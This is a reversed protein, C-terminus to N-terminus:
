ITADSAHSTLCYFAGCIILALAGVVVFQGVLRRRDKWLDPLVAAAWFWAFLYIFGTLKSLIALVLVLALGIMVKVSSRKVLCLTLVLALSGFAAMLSDALAQREFFVAQPLVAYLLGALLGVQRSILQQGLRMCAACSLMSMVAVVARALWLGHPGGVDFLALLVSLFYKGYMLFPYNPTDAAFLRARQIHLGEDAFVPLVYLDTLRVWLALGLISRGAAWSGTRRSFRWRVASSMDLM